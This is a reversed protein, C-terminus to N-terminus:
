IESPVIAATAQMMFKVAHKDEVQLVINDSKYLSDIPILGSRVHM